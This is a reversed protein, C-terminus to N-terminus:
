LLVALLLPITLVAMLTSVIVVSAVGEPDTRSVLAFMYNYVAVPMSLQLIFMARPVGSMGFIWALAFGVAIGMGIRLASLALTRGLSQVEITALSTGLMLVMLPITLDAPLQLTNMLWVPLTVHFQGVALALLAALLAPSTVVAKWDTRGIAIAQGLTFNGVANVTHLVAAFGLGTPGAAYLALPLGLNGTNGFMMSPLFARVSLANLRLLCWGIVGFLAMAVTAAGAYGLLATGTLQNKLLATFILAPSGIQVVLLHLIEGQVPKGLRALVYGLLTILMVPVVAAFVIEV